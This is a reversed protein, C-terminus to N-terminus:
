DSGCGPGSGDCESLSCAQTAPCAHGCTGCNRPDSDPDTCVTGGDASPCITLHCVCVGGLCSLGVGCYNGCGGCNDNDLLEQSCVSGGELGPCEIYGPYCSCTGDPNCTANAPCPPCTPAGGSNSGSGTGTTAAPSGSAQGVIRDGTIQLCGGSALLLACLGGTSSVQLTSM